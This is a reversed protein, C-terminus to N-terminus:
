NTEDIGGLIIAVMKIIKQLDQESAGATMEYIRDRMKLTSDTDADYLLDTVQVNFYEAIKQIKDMRPMKTGLYWDSVISTSYGLDVALDKQTKSNLNLYYKLRKAFIQKYDTM